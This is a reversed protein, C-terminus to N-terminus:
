QNQSDAEKWILSEPVPNKNLFSQAEKRARESERTDNEQAIPSVELPDNLLDYL